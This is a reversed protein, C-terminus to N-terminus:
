YVEMIADTNGSAWVTFSITGTGNNSITAPDYTCFAGPAGNMYSVFRVVTPTEQGSPDFSGALPPAPLTITQSGNVLSTVTYPHVKGAGPYAGIKFTVTAM